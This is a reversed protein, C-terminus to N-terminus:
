RTAAPIARADLQKRPRGPTQVHTSPPPRPTSGALPHDVRASGVTHETGAERSVLRLFQGSLEIAGLALGVLLTTTPHIALVAFGTSGLASHRNPAGTGGSVYDAASM